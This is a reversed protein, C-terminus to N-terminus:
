YLNTFMNSDGLGGGSGFIGRIYDGAGPDSADLPTNGFRSPLPGGPLPAGPEGPGVQNGFHYGSPGRVVNTGQMWGDDGLHPGGAQGGIDEMSFGMDHLRAAYEDSSEGQNRTPMTPLPFGSTDWIGFSPNHVHGPENSSLMNTDYGMPGQHEFGGKQGPSLHASMDQLSSLFDNIEADSMGLARAADALSDHTSNGTGAGSAPGASSPGSTANGSGGKPGRWHGTFGGPPPTPGSHVAPLPAPSTSGAAPGTFIPDGHNGPQWALFHAQYPQQDSFDLPGSPGNYGDGGGGHGHGSPLPPGQGVGGIDPGDMIFPNNQDGLGRTPGSLPGYAAGPGSWFNQTGGGSVPNDASGPIGGGTNKVNWEHFQLLKSLIGKHKTIWDPVDYGPNAQLPGVGDDGIRNPNPDAALYKELFQWMDGENRGPSLAWANSPDYGGGSTDIPGGSEPLDYGSWPCM